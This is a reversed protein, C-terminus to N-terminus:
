DPPDGRDRQDPREQVVEKISVELFHPPSLAFCSFGRRCAPLHWHECPTHTERHEALREISRPGGTALSVDVSTLLHAAIVDEGPDNEDDKHRHQYEYEAQKAPQGPMNRPQAPM